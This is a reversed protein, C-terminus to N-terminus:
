FSTSSMVTKVAENVKVNLSSFFKLPQNGCYGVAVQGECSIIALANTIKLNFKFEFKFNLAQNVCYVVAVARVPYLQRPM